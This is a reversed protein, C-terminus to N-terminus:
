FRHKSEWSYNLQQQTSADQLRNHFAKLSAKQIFSHDSQEVYIITTHRLLLGTNDGSTTPIALIAWTQKQNNKHSIPLHGLKTRSTHYIYYLFIFFILNIQVVNLWKFIYQISSPKPLLHEAELNKFCQKIFHKGTIQSCQRIVSIRWCNLM